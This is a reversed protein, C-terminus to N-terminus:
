EHKFHSEETNISKYDRAHVSNASIFHPLRTFIKHKFASFEKEIDRCGCCHRSVPELIEGIDRCRCNLTAVDYNYLLSM